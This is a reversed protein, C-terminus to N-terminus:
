FCVKALADDVSELHSHAKPEMGLSRRDDSVTQSDKDNRDSKDCRGNNEASVSNERTVTSRDASDGGTANDCGRRSLRLPRRTGSRPLWEIDIGVQEMAPALRRLRSGLNHPTRPWGTPVREPFSPTILKRLEGATGEWEEKGEDLMERIAVAVPDSDLVVEAVRDRQSMYTDLAHGGTVEDMAALVRAFDAMRPSRELKVGSLEHLVAALLDLLAGFLQPREDQYRAELEAETLRRSEPIPDLDVLLVRDGLDGRLAGADISTLSIVRRFSLVVVDGDTYLKRDIWGQGTVAKCLTDSLWDPIFSVNDICVGWSASASIAWQRADRPQSRVPVPSPDFLGGLLRAATTKGAGQQGGLLLIPHPIEPVLAAVLWGQVLPWTEETVNLLGRLGHLDGGPLPRPLKATTATRRFLVPSRDVVEWTNPGVVVARGQADGLDIVIKGDHEAVRLYIPEAEMELAEGQLSMLADTLAAGSPVKGYKRRYERSLSSRLAEGNGQLTLAVTPGDKKVAFAQDTDSRGLRYKSLALEVLKDATSRDEKGQDGDGATLKGNSRSRQKGNDGRTKNKTTEATRKTARGRRPATSKKENKTSMPRRM